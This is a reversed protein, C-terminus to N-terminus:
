FCLLEFAQELYGKWLSLDRGFERMLAGNGQSVDM